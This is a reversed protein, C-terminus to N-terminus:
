SDLFRLHNKRSLLDASYQLLLIYWVRDCPEEVVSVFPNDIFFEVAAAAAPFADVPDIVVESPYQYLPKGIM